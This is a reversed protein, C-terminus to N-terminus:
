GGQCALEPVYLLLKYTSSSVVGDVVKRDRDRGTVFHKERAFFLQMKASQMGDM